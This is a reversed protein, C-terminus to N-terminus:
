PRPVRGVLLVTVDDHHHESFLRSALEPAGGAAPGMRLVASAERRLAALGDDLLLRRTEVLGDSYLVLTDGVALQYTRETRESEQFGLLPDGDLAVFDAQDGRVLLAPVHGAHSIRLTASITDIVACVVTAIAHPLNRLTYRDLRALADAPGAGETVYARLVNRMQAMESAAVLGHGAVDGVIVAILDDDITFVDYWDGGIEGRGASQSFVSFIYGPLAPLADPRMVRQLDRALSASDREYRSLAAALHRTFRQAAQVASDDWPEARGRITERWLDFSRRPSLRVHDGESAALKANHPDGGWDVARVLEPRFWAVLESRDNMLAFGIVGSAVEPSGAAAPCVEGLRHTQLVEDRSPWCEIIGDIVDDGPTEGLRIRVGAAQVIFGTAGALALVESEHAHLVEDIDAQGTTAFAHAVHDAIATLEITQSRVDAELTESIRHSILQALFEAANRAPVSVHHAGSYHHCAVLGWLEGNIVISVSMSAGVGMNGLYEVHIPSVSRLTSSSLDLPRATDHAVAPVLPVPTYAIDPILRLWNRRYLERAQAPIDSAPYHLGLFTNLDDRKREAIVEGNWDADFRYVMVRDFGSLARVWRAAADAVDLVSRSTQLAMAAERVIMAHFTDDAEEREIEIVLYPGSRYLTAILPGSEHAMLVEDFRREWDMARVREVTARGDAGILEEIPRGVADAATTAFWEGINGSVVAVVLDPETVAILVGHPQIAGPVHIPESACNDLDVPAV